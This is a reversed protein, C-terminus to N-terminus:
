SRMEKVTEFFFPDDHIIVSDAHRWVAMGYWLTLSTPRNPLKMNRKIACLKVPQFGMNLLGQQVSKRTPNSKARSLFRLEYLGGQRLPHPQSRFVLDSLFPFSLAKVFIWRMGPRDDLMIPRDLRALFRFRLPDDEPAPAAGVGSTSAPSTSMPGTAFPSGWDRWKSWLDFLQKAVGAPDLPRAAPTVPSPVAAQPPSSFSPATTPDPSTSADPSPSADTTAFGYGSPAGGGGGGGGGDTPAPESSSLDASPEPTLSPPVDGPFAPPSASPPAFEGGAPALTASGPKVRGLSSSVGFTQDGVAKVVAHLPSASPSAEITVAAGGGPTLTASGPKARGLSSAVGFTQDGIAKVAAHLPSSATPATAPGGYRSQISVVTPRPPAPVPPPPSPASVVKAPAPPAAAMTAAAGSRRLASTASTASSLTATATPKVGLSSQLTLAGVEVPPLSQDFVIVGFGMSSLARHLVGPDVMRDFEMEVFYDGPRLVQASM